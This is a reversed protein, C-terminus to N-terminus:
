TSTKQRITRAMMTLRIIIHKDSSAPSVLSENVYKGGIYFYDRQAPVEASQPVQLDSNWTSPLAFVNLVCALLLVTAKPFPM